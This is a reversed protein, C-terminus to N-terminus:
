PPPPERGAPILPHDYNISFECFLRDLGSRPLFRACVNRLFVNARETGKTPTSAFNHFGMDFKAADEPHRDPEV